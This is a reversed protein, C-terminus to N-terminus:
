PKIRVFELKSGRPDKLTMQNGSVALEYVSTSSGTEIKIRGRDGLSYRGQISGITVAGNPSFEWITTVTSDASRWQGVLDRQTGGCSTALSALAMACAIRLAPFLTPRIM